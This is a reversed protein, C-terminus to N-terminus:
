LTLDLSFDLLNLSSPNPSIEGKAMKKIQNETLSIVNNILKPTVFSSDSSILSQLTKLNNITKDSLVQDKSIAEIESSIKNVLIVAEEKSIDCLKGQWDNICACVVLGNQNLSCTSNNKCPSPSCTNVEGDTGIFKYNFYKGIDNDKECINM